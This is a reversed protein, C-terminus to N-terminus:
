VYKCYTQYKDLSLVDSGFLEIDSDFFIKGDKELIIIDSDDDSDKEKAYSYVHNKSIYIESHDLLFCAWDEEIIEPDKLSSPASTPTKLLDM